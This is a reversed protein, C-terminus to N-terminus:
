KIIIGQGTPLPLIDINQLRAWERWGEYQPEYGHYGFDDLLVVGGKVVNKWLIKVSEIEPTINNLDISLYAIEGIEVEALSAPLSGKILKVSPYAAFNDKVSTFIDKNYIWENKKIRNKEVEEKTLLTSDIGHWTDFLYFNRKQSNWDFYECIASTLFGSWVGLEMFDGELKLAQQACWLAVRVRWRFHYDVGNNAIIGKKYAKVFKKEKVFEHNHISILGDEDYEQDYRFRRKISKLLKFFRKLKTIM